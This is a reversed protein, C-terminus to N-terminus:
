NNLAAQYAFAVLTWRNFGGYFNNRSNTHFVVQINNPCLVLVCERGRGLDDENGGTKYYFTDGSWQGSRLGLLFLKMWDRVTTSVNGGVELTSMVRAVEGSRMVFGRPGCTETNDDNAYGGLSTDAFNHYRVDPSTSDWDFVDVDMTVGSPALVNARVYDLYLDRAFEDQHTSAIWQSIPLGDSEFWQEDFASMEKPAVLFALLYRCLGYNVNEYDYVYDYGDEPGLLDSSRGAAVSDELNYYLSEEPLSASNVLGSHHSILEDFTIEAVSPHIEWHAPLYNIISESPDLGADDLAQLVAMATLTKSLSAIEQRTDETYDIGADVNVSGGAGSVVEAGNRYISYSYGVSGQQLAFGILGGMLGVDVDDGEIEWDEAWDGLDPPVIPGPVGSDYIPPFAPDFTTSPFNWDLLDGDDSASKKELNRNVLTATQSVERTTTKERELSLSLEPEQALALLGCCAAASFVITRLAVKM